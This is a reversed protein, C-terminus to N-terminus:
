MQSIHWSECHNCEILEMWSQHHASGCCMQYCIYDLISFVSYLFGLKSKVGKSRHQEIDMLDLYAVYIIGTHWPASLCNWRPDIVFVERVEVHYMTDHVVAPVM